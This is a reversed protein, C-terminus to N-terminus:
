REDIGSINSVCTFGDHWYAVESKGVAKFSATKATFDLKTLEYLQGEFDRAFLIKGAKTKWASGWTNTTNGPLPGPLGEAAFFTAGNAGGVLTPTGTVDVVSIQNNPSEVISVLYTKKDAEYAVMDAGMAGKPKVDNNSFGSHLTWAKNQAVEYAKYSYWGQEAALNSISFLGNNSYLWLTGDATFYGAFCWGPAQQVFGMESKDIRAIRNGQTMQVQCYLMKDVPNVACANMSYMEDAYQAPVVEFDNVFTGSGEDTMHRVYTTSSTKAAENYPVTTSQYLAHECPFKDKNPTYPLRDGCSFGDNWSTPNAKAIKKFEAKKTKFNITNTVLRYLGDGSDQAFYVTNEGGWKWAAGWVNPTGAGGLNTSLKFLEYPGPSIRVVLLQVDMVSVLYTMHTANELPAKIVGFDAGLEYNINPQGNIVMEVAQEGVNNLGNYSDYATMKSVGKVVSMQNQGSVYYNDDDDFTAAYRFGLLKTIYGITNDQDIRVLFSGIWSGAKNVEMSCYLIKDKPNIACSNMSRIQNPSGIANLNVDMQTEYKGTEMNLVQFKTWSNDNATTSQYAKSTAKGNVDVCKWPKVDVSRALKPQLGGADSLKLDRQLLEIRMDEAVDDHGLNNGVSKCDTRQEGQECVEEASSARLLLLLIPYSFVMATQKM